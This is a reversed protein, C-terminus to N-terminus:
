IFKFVLPVTEKRGLIIPKGSLPIYVCDEFRGFLKTNGEQNMKYGDPEIALISGAISTKNDSRLFIRKDEGGPYKKAGQHMTHGINRRTDAFKIGEKQYRNKYWAYVDTGTMQSNLNAIGERHIEYILKLFSVKENDEKRPKFVAMSNYDGWNAGSDMPHMDIFITDGPTLLVSDSPSKLKYDKRYMDNFRKEGILVMVGIDYWFKKIGFQSLNKIVKQEVEKESTGATLSSAVRLYVEFCIAQLHNVAEIFNKM